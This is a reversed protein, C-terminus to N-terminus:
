ARDPAVRAEGRRVLTTSQEDVDFIIQVDGATIQRLVGERKADLSVETAGYDTGERTIFEEVLGALAAPSLSAHPIQIWDPL